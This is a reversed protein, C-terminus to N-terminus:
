ASPKRAQVRLRVYGLYMCGDDDHTIVTKLLECVEQVVAEKKSAPDPFDEQLSPYDFVELFKAGMLRVWGALGGGEETTLKTPRYELEMKEVEFGVAQLQTRMDKQSPFYWPCLTQAEDLRIGQHNVAAILATHVEAVNGKGGMEFVFMGGPRLSKYVNNLVDRREGGHKLMWHLAANSFIKTFAKEQFHVWRDLYRCDHVHFSLGLTTAHAKKATAIFNASSDIGAVLACNPKIQATLQGDGCGLDLIVDEPQPDLWQLVTTALKPVFSASTSYAEETWHDKTAQSQAM